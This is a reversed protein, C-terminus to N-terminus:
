VKRRRMLNAVHPVEVGVYVYVELRHEVKRLPREAAHREAHAARVERVLQGVPRIKGAPVIGQIVIQDPSREEHAELELHSLETASGRRSATPLTPARARGTAPRSGIHGYRTASGRHNRWPGSTLTQVFAPRSGRARFPTRGAASRRRACCEMTAAALHM